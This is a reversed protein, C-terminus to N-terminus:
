RLDSKKVMGKQQSEKEKECVNTSKGMGDNQKKEEESELKKGANGKKQRLKKAGYIRWLEAYTLTFVTTKPKRKETEKEMNSAM